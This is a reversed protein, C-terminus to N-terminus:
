ENWDFDWSGSVKLSYDSDYDGGGTGIDDRIEQAYGNMVVEKEEDM